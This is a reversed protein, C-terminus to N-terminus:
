FGHKVNNLLPNSPQGGIDLHLYGELSMTLIFPRIGFYRSQDGNVVSNVEMSDIHNAINMGKGLPRM